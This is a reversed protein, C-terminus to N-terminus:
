THDCIKTCLHSYYCIVFKSTDPLVCIINTTTLTYYYLDFYPWQVGDLLEKITEINRLIDSICKLTQSPESGQIERM